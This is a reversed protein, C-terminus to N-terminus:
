QGPGAARLKPKWAELNDQMFRFRRPSRAKLVDGAYVYAMASEAFDEGPGGRVSYVSMPQEKWKPLNWNGPLIEAGSGGGDLLKADDGSGTWGVARSFTDLVQPTPGADAGAAKSADDRLGHGLEHAILRRMSTARDIYKLPAGGASGEEELTIATPPYDGSPDSRSVPLPKSNKTLAEFVNLRGSGFSAGVDDRGVWKRQAVDYEYHLKHFVIEKVHPTGGFAKAFDAFAALIAEYVAHSAGPDWSTWGPAKGGAQDAQVGTRVQEVGYRAKIAADFDTRTTAPAEKRAVLLRNVAANGATAQLGLM